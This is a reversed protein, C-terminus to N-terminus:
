SPTTRFRRCSGAARVVTTRTGSAVRRSSRRFYKLTCDSESPLNANRAIGGPVYLTNAHSLTGPAAQNFASNMLFYSALPSVTTKVFPAEEVKCSMAIGFSGSGHYEPSEGGSR